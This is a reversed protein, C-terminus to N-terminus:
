RCVIGADGKECTLGAACGVGAPCPEGAQLRPACRTGPTACWLDVFCNLDSGCAAGADGANQAECTPPSRGTNCVLSGSCVYHPALWSGENVCPDGAAGARGCGFALGLLAVAAAARRRGAAASACRAVMGARLRAGDPAGPFAACLGRGPGFRTLQAGRGADAGQEQMSLNSLAGSFTSRGRSLSRRCCPHPRPQPHVQRPTAFTGSPFRTESLGRRTPPAPEIGAPLLRRRVARPVPSSASDWSRRSALPPQVAASGLRSPM